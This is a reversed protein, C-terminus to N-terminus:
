FNDQLSKMFFRNWNYLLPWYWISSTWYNQLAWVKPLLLLTAHLGLGKGSVLITGTMILHSFSNLSYKLAHCWSTDTSLGQKWTAQCTRSISIIVSFTCCQPYCRPTISGCTNSDHMGSVGTVDCVPFGSVTEDLVCSWLKMCVVWVRKVMSREGECRNVLVEVIM